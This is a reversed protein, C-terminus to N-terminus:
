DFVLLGVDIFKEIQAVAGGVNVAVPDNVFFVVLDGNKRSRPYDDVRRDFFQLRHGVGAALKVFHKIERGVVFDFVM